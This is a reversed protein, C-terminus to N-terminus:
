QTLRKLTRRAYADHPHRILFQYLFMASEYDDHVTGM